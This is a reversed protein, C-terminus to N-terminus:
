FFVSAIPQWMVFELDTIDYSPSGELIAIPLSVLINATLLFGIVGSQFLGWYTWTQKTSLLSAVPLGAKRRWSKAQELGKRTGFWRAIGMGVLFLSFLSAYLQYNERYNKGISEIWSNIEPSMQVVGVLALEPSGIWPWVIRCGFRAE